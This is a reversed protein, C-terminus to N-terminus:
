TYRERKTREEKLIKSKYKYKYKNKTERKLTERERIYTEAEGKRGKEGEIYRERDSERQSYMEEERM